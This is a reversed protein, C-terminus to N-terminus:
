PIPAPNLRPAEEETVGSPWPPWEEDPPLYTEEPLPAPLNWADRDRDNQDREEREELSMTGGTRYTSDWEARLFRRASPATASRKPRVGAVSEERPALVCEARDEDESEVAVVIWSRGRAVFSDGVAPLAKAYRIEVNGPFRFVVQREM